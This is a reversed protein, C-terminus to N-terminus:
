LAGGLGKNLNLLEVDNTTGEGGLLAGLGLAVSDAHKCTVGDKGAGLEPVVHLSLVLDALDLTFDDRGALDVLLVSVADLVVTDDETVEGASDSDVHVLFVTVDGEATSHGLQVGLHSAAVRGTSLGDLNDTGANHGNALETAGVNHLHGLLVDLEGLAILTLTGGHLGHLGSELGISGGEDSCSLTRATKEAVQFSTTSSYCILALQYAYINDDSHFFRTSLM